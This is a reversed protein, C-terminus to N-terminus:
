DSAIWVLNLIGGIVVFVWGEARGAAVMLGGIAMAISAPNEAAIKLATVGNMVNLSAAEEM